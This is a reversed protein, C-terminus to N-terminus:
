NNKTSFKQLVYEKYLIYFMYIHTNKIEQFLCKSSLISSIEVNRFTSIVKHCFHLLYWKREHSQWDYCTFSWKNLVQNMDIAKTDRFHFIHNPFIHMQHVTRRSFRRRPFTRRPVSRRPVTWRFFTKPFSDMLSIDTPSFDMPSIDYVWYQHYICWPLFAM